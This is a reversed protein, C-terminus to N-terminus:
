FYDNFVIKKGRFAFPVEYQNFGETLADWLYQDTFSLEKSITLDASGYGSVVVCYGDGVPTDLDTLSTKRNLISDGIGAYRFACNLRDAYERITGFFQFETSNTNPRDYTASWSPVVDYFYVHALQERESKFELSHQYRADDNNKESSQVQRIYYKEGRLEVYEKNTWEDDLCTPWMLTATLTPMGMRPSNFRYDTLEIDHFTPNNPGLGNDTRLKLIDRVM